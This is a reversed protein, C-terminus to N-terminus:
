PALVMKFRTLYENQCRGMGAPQHVAASIELNTKQKQVSACMIERDMEIIQDFRFSPYLCIEIRDQVKILM